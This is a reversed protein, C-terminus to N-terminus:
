NKCYHKNMKIKIKYMLQLGKETLHFNRKKLDILRKWDYFGLRKVTYLPYRDLFRCIKQSNRIWLTTAKRSCNLTSEFNSIDYKPKLYGCDFYNKIAALVAVDHNNQKIQLSFNINSKLNRKDKIIECQFSGEGDIFGQIWEPKLIINNKWCFKYKEKFSRAKNMKSKIIRLDNIGNIDYHKKNSMLIVASKFDVYNLNKSTKLPYNDLHPLVKFLLDNINTITFKMTETNRNDINIRGSKFFKQLEYLIGQSEKKQTVKFELFPKFGTLGKGKKDQITIQFSGEADILGTVYWPNFVCIYGSSGLYFSWNELINNNM